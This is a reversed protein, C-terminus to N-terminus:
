YWPARLCPPICPWFCRGFDNFSEVGLQTVMENLQGAPDTIALVPPQDELTEGVADHERVVVGFHANHGKCVSPSFGAIPVWLQRFMPDAM